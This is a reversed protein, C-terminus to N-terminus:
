DMCYFKVSGKKGHNIITAWDDLEVNKGQMKAESLNHRLGYAKADNPQITEMRFDENGLMLQLEASESNSNEVIFDHPCWGASGPNLIKAEQVIDESAQPGAVATGVTLGATLFVTLLCLSWKRINM